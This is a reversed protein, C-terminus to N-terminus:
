QENIMLWCAYVMTTNFFADKNAREVFEGLLTYLNKGSHELDWKISEKCADIGFMGKKSDRKEEKAIIEKLTM